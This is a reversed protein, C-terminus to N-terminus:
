TLTQTGQWQRAAGHLPSLSVPTAHGAAPSPLSPGVLSAWDLQAKPYSRGLDPGPQVRTIPALPAPCFVSCPLEEQIQNPPEVNPRRTRCGGILMASPLRLDRGGARPAALLKAQLSPVTQNSRESCGQKYILSSDPGLTLSSLPGSRGRHRRM